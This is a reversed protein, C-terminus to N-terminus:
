RAAQKDADKDKWLKIRGTNTQRLGPTSRGDAVYKELLSTLRAVVDPNAAAVNNTEGIDRSLDYLQVSPLKRAAATNPRPGSWGGSSSCLALKWAGQRIAFSGNISHHVLAERVPKAVEGRLVPLLSMSDEGANDPLKAGVIDACTAM